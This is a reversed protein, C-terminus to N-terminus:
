SKRTMNERYELETTNSILLKQSWWNETNWISFTMLLSPHIYADLNPGSHLAELKTELTFVSSLSTANNILGNM